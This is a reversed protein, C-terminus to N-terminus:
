KIDGILTQRLSDFVGFYVSRYITFGTLSIGFGRYYLRM